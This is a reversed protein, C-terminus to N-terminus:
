ESAELMVIANRNVPAFAGRPSCAFLAAFLERALTLAEATYGTFSFLMRLGYGSDRPKGRHLLDLEPAGVPEGTVRVLVRVDTSILRCSDPTTIVQFPGGYGNARLWREVAATASSHPNKAGSRSVTMALRDTQAASSTRRPSSVASNMADPRAAVFGARSCVARAFNNAALLRGDGDYTFLAVEAGAAEIATKTFGSHSFFLLNQEKAPTRSGILLQIERRGTQAGQFKVQVITHAARVDIGADPGGPTLKVGRFGFARMWAAAYREADQWSSVHRM